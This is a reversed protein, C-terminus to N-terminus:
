RCPLCWQGKLVQIKDGKKFKVTFRDSFVTLLDRMTDKKVALAELIEGRHQEELGSAEKVIWTLRVQHVAACCSVNEGKNNDPQEDDAEDVEELEESVVEEEVEEDAEDAHKVKKRPHLVKWEDGSSADDDSEPATQKGLRSSTAKKTPARKVNRSKRGSKASARGKGKVNAM